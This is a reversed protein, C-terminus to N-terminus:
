KKFFKPCYSDVLRVSLGTYKSPTLSKLRKKEFDPIKLDSIFAHVLKKNVTKGRTLKKLLDYANVIKYKRMVTQIPEAMLEWAEDLDNAITTQNIELKHLGQICSKYAILSYGLVSGINRLTTSDTLDRQWRSIPLKASFYEFLANAIGLNGESNEFDIPNVKHPMTSSGVEGKLVKQKFYGLSIYGWLDKNMDILVTNFRKIADFGEALYDHPEIQTTFPNFKLGLDQVFKKSVDLWDVNPYAVIHANYNGVAGNMKGSVESHEVKDMMEELRAVVNIFEKGVTTPSATQGHTRSMMAVSKYRKALQYVYEIVGTMVPYMVTKYADKVLLGYALNNIDESTCAFHVFEAYPEFSSDKFKERIFYEIAKVDHNTIKEIEKVRNADVFDFFDYISRLKKLEGAKWVRTGKLRASNSLHIFWEIEVVLRYKMLAAESFFPRLEDVKESYRGDLPSINDLSESSM